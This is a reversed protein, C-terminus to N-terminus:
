CCKDEEGDVERPEAEHSLLEVPLLQAVKEFFIDVPGCCENEVENVDHADEDKGDEWGHFIVGHFVGDKVTREETEECVGGVVEGVECREFAEGNFNNEHVDKPSNDECSSDARCTEVDGTPHM